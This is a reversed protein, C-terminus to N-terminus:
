ELSSAAPSPHPALLLTRSVGTLRGFLFIMETNGKRLGRSSPRRGLAIGRLSLTVDKLFGGWVSQSGVWGGANDYGLGESGNERHADAGRQSHPLGGM